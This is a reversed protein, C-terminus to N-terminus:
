RPERRSPQALRDAIRVLAAFSDAQMKQMVQGRHMKVTKESMGLQDGVQKNLLGTVVLTMVERERPTLAGYLRRYQELEVRATRLVRERELGIAVADLLAQDDFPKTLVEVAGAKMARVTLRVDAHATVFIVPLDLGSSMLTQQLDLGNLGPMRVDLLVCGSIGQKARALFDDGSAYTECTLGVSGLLRKIATRVSADDDVVFISLPSDNAPAQM